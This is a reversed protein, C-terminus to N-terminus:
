WARPCIEQNWLLFDSQHHHPWALADVAPVSSAKLIDLVQDYSLRRRFNKELFSSFEKSTKRPSLRLLCFFVRAPLRMRALMMSRMEVTCSSPENLLWSAEYFYGQHSAWYGQKKKPKTAIIPAISGARWVCSGKPSGWCGHSFHRWLRTRDGSISSITKSMINM